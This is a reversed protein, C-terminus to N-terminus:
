TEEIEEQRFWNKLEIIKMISSKCLVWIQLSMGDTIGTRPSGVSGACMCIHLCFMCLTFYIFDKKLFHYKCQRITELKVKAWSDEHLILGHMMPMLAESRTIGEEM